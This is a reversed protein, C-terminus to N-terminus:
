RPGERVGPGRQDADKGMCGLTRGSKVAVIPKVNVTDSNYVLATPGGRWSGLAVLGLAVLASMLAVDAPFRAPAGVGVMTLLAAALV